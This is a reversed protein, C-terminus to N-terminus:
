NEPPTRNAHRRVFRVAETAGRSLRTTLPELERAAATDGAEAFLAAAQALLERAADPGYLRRTAQGALRTLRAAAHTNLVPVGIDAGRRAYHLAGADDGQRERLEALVECTRAQGHVDGIEERIELAQVLAADAQDDDGAAAHVTGATHLILARGYVDTLSDVLELAEGIAEAANPPDGLGLHIKALTNLTLAAGRRDDVERAIALAREACDLAEPLRGLKRYLVAYADLARGQGRRGGIETRIRLAHAACRDAEGYAGLRRYARSLHEFTDSEGRKDGIEQRIDLAELGLCVAEELRRLHRYIRALHALAEGEGAREGIERRIELAREVHERAQPFRGEHLHLVGIDGLTEGEGRRHRIERRIELATTFHGLAERRHGLDSHLRGLTANTEAVGHRDGIEERLRLAQQATRLAEPYFAIRQYTRALNDLTEAEGQRDGIEQEIDLAELLYRAAEPYAGRFVHIQAISDLTQGEGRRDGSIQRIRLAETAYELAEGFRSLHWYAQAINDLADGEGPRDGTERYLKLADAANSLSAHYDSLLRYTHALSNRTAAEGRMDGLASWLRYAREDLRLADDYRGRERHIVALHHLMVARDRDTGGAQAAAYGLKHVDLNFTNYHRLELFAFQAEALRWTLEHRGSRAAQGTIAVLNEREAEFWARAGSGAPTGLLDAAQRAGRHYWRVLRLVAADREDPDDEGAHERAYERLLDHMRYRDGGTAVVLHARALDRLLRRAQDVDVDLLAATARPTTDPGDVLGLRRFARRQDTDLDGYSLDFASRVAGGPDEDLSLAALRDHDLEDVLGAISEQPRVVLNAAAIRLALPLYACRRALDAAADSEATVRDTGLVTSVLDLAETPPLVDLDLTRAGETAVLGPLQNRTTVVVLCDGHGPLLPRVQDSNAVNDLVILVRRSALRTRYLAAQEEEDDPVLEGPVGLARLLRGFAERVTMQGRASHGHMDLFLQADPFRDRVLHAWHVALATKGVGAMGQIATIVMARPRPDDLAASLQALAAARGVFDSIDGPLQAPRPPPPSNYVYKDGAVLDGGIHADNFVAGQEPVADPERDPVAPPDAGPNTM